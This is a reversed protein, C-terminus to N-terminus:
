QRHKELAKLADPTGIKTLAELAFQSVAKDDLLEVLSPVADPNKSEGLAIIAGIRVMYEDDHLVSLLERLAANANEYSQLASTAWGRAKADEHHLARSLSPIAPSGIKRLAVAAGLNVEYQEHYLANLLAPVAVPGIQVLSNTARDRMGRMDMYDRELLKIFEPVACYDRLTSNKFMFRGDSTSILVDMKQTLDLFADLESGLGLIGEIERRQLGVPHQNLPRWM